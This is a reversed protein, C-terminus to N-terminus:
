NCSVNPGNVGNNQECIQRLQSSIKQNDDSISSVQAKLQFLVVASYVLGALLLVIIISSGIIYSTIVKRSTITM